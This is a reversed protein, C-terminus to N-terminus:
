SAALTPLHDRVVTLVTGTSELETREATLRSIQDRLAANEAESESKALKLEEIRDVLLRTRDSLSNIREQLSEVVRRMKEDRNPSDALVMHSILDLKVAETTLVHPTFPNYKGGIGSTAVKAIGAVALGGVGSLAAVVALRTPSGKAVTAVKGLKSSKISERRLATMLSEHVETMTALDTDRLSVLTSAADGLSANLVKRTWELNDTWPEFVMLEALIVLAATRTDVLGALTPAAWTLAHLQDDVTRNYVRVLEPPVAGPPFGKSQLEEFAGEVFTDIDAKLAEASPKKWRSPGVKLQHEWEERMMQAQLCRLTVVFDPSLQLEAVVQGVSFGAM